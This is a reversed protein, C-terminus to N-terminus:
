DRPADGAVRAAAQAFALDRIAFGRETAVVSDPALRGHVWGASHAPALEGCLDRLLRKAEVPALRGLPVGAPAAVTVEVADGDRRVAVVRGVGDRQLRRLARAARAAGPGSFRRTDAGRADATM